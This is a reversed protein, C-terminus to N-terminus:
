LIKNAKKLNEKTESEKIRCIKAGLITVQNQIKDKINYKTEEVKNNKNGLKLIQTKEENIKSESAESHKQYLTKIIEIEKPHKIVITTDDAYCQIKIKNNHKTTHGNINKNDKIMEIIPIASLTYLTM